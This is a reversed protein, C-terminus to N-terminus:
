SKTAGFGIPGKEKEKSTAKKGPQNTLINFLAVLIQESEPYEEKITAIGTMLTRTDEAEMTTRGHQYALQYILAYLKMCGLVVLYMLWVLLAIWAVTQWQIQLM